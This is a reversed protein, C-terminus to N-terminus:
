GAAIGEGAALFAVPRDWQILVVCGEESWVSHVSGEPNVALSGAPYRGREDCQAGELVLITEMGMHRHAPARGGPAYRLLALAPEGEVLVCMEIGERFPAFPLDRWGGAMLGAISFPEPM